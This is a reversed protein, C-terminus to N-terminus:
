GYGIVEEVTADWRVNLDMAKNAPQKMHPFYVQVNTSTPEGRGSIAAYMEAFVNTSSRSSALMSSLVSKLPKFLAFKKQTFV